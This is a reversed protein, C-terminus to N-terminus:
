GPSAGHDVKPAGNPAWVSEFPDWSQEGKKFLRTSPGLEESEIDFEIEGLALAHLLCQWVVDPSHGVAACLGMATWDRAAVLGKLECLLSENPVSRLFRVLRAVNSNLPERVLQKETLVVFRWGREECYDRAASLKRRTDIKRLKRSPKIEVLVLDGRCRQILLDPVTYTTRPWRRNAKPSKEASLQVDESDLRSFEYWVRCPQETIESIAPSVAMTMVAIAELRGQCRISRNQHRTPVLLFTGPTRRRFSYTSAVESHPSIKM